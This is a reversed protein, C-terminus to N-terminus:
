DIIDKRRKDTLYLPHTRYRPSFKRLLISVIDLVRPISARITKIWSRNNQAQQATIIDSRKPLKNISRGGFDESQQKIHENILKRLKKSKKKMKKKWKRDLKQLDKLFQNKMSSVLEQNLEDADKSAAVPLVETFIDDM